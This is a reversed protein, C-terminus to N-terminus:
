AYGAKTLVRTANAMNLLWVFKSGNLKSSYGKTIHTHTSAYKQVAQTECIAHKFHNRREICRCQVNTQYPLTDCYQTRGRRWCFFSLNQSTKWFNPLTAVISESSTINGLAQYLTSQFLGEFIAPYCPIITLVHQLLAALTDEHKKTVTLQQTIVSWHDWQNISRRLNNNNNDKKMYLWDM